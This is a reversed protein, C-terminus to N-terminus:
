SKRDTSNYEIKRMIHNFLFFFVLAMAEPALLGDRKYKHYRWKSAESGQM